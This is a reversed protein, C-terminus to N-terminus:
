SPKESPKLYARVGVVIIELVSFCLIALILRLEQSDYGFGIMFAVANRTVTQHSGKQFVFANAEASGGAM